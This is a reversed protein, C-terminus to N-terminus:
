ARLVETVTTLTLGRARFDAVVTALIEATQPSGCHALVIGGNVAGRVMNARVREPEIPMWDLADTTWFIHYPWGAEAILQLMRPNRAGYPARWLPKTGQGTAAVIAAEGRQMEDLVQADSMNTLDGHAYTHNAIEHEAAIQKALEPNQDAWAGTLFFTTRIRERRLVELIEPTPVASSGCDFTISAAARTVNGVVFEQPPFALPPPTTTTSPPPLTTTPSTTTTTALTRDSRTARRTADDGDGSCAAVLLLVASAARIRM